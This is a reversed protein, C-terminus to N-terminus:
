NVARSTRLRNSLRRRADNKMLRQVGGLAAGEDGSLKAAQYIHELAERFGPHVLLLAEAEKRVCEMDGTKLCYDVLMLWAQPQQSYRLSLQRVFLEGGQPPAPCKGQSFCRSYFDLSALEEISLVRRDGAFVAEQLLQQWEQAREADISNADFYILLILARISNPKEIYSRYALERAAILYRQALAPEAAALASDQYASALHMRSRESDPHSSYHHEALALESQWYASRVFLLLLLIAVTALGFIRLRLKLMGSVRTLFQAFLLCVAVSPLYNRHEFVMELALVSSEMSHAVLYWLVAFGLLPARDRMKWSLWLLLLWAIVAVLVAADFFSRSLDLYDHHFSLSGPIPFSLWSLYLWLVRLQTLVRETLSFDRYEYAQQVLEPSFLLVALLAALPALLGILTFNRYGPSFTGGIQFRFLCLETIGLLWPLLLGNEKSFSALLSFLFVYFAASSVEEVAPVRRLWQVRLRFFLFLGLLVFMSSLQTMRQVAYLVTSVHIPHLTWIAAALVAVVYVKEQGQRLVPSASLILRVFLLVGLGNLCHLFINGLKMGTASVGGELAASLAFSFNSLPRGLPGAATGFTAVRWGELTSADFELWQNDALAYGSDFLFYDGTHLFYVGACAVMVALM